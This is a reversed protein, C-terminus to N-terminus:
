IIGFLILGITNIAFNAFMHVLWSCYINESKENLINFVVGGLYLGILSLIFLGINFMELTMGIHYIAFLGASITYAINRPILRKLNIFAYGRFFFEELLSNMFSIYIAVYIFNEKSVGVDKTLNETIGSFDIIDKLLYYGGIIVLYVFIGLILSIILEKKKPTFLKKLEKIENKNIIFYILPVILFLFVKVISKILYNPKIVGDIFCMILACLITSIILYIKKNKQTM